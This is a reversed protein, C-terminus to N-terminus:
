QQEAKIKAKLKEIRGLLKVAYSYDGTHMAENWEAALQERLQILKQQDTM